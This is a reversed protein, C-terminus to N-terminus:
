LETSGIYPTHTHGRTLSSVVWMGSPVAGVGFLCNFFGMLNKKLFVSIHFLFVLYIFYIKLLYIFYLIYLFIGIKYIFYSCHSLWPLLFLWLFSQYTKSWVLWYFYLEFWIHNFIKEQLAPSRPEIEPNPLNGQLLAHCGVGINKGLPDGHIYSGPLSCDVPDCLIPCSQSVLCLM